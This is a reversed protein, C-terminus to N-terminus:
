PTKSGPNQNPGPTQTQTQNVSSAILKKQLDRTIALIRKRAVRTAAANISDMDRTPLDLNLGNDRAKRVVGALVYAAIENANQQQLSHKRAIELLAARIKPDAALMAGVRAFQKSYLGHKLNNMNGRPAGAGPRKGGRGM